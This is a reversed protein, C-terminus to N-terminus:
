LPIPVLMTRATGAAIVVMSVYSVSLVAMYRNLSSPLARRSLPPSSAQIANNEEMAAPIDFVLYLFEKVAANPSVRNTCLKQRDLPRYTIYPLFARRRSSFITDIAYRVVPRRGLSTEIGKELLIKFYSIPM